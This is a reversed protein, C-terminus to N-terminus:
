SKKCKMARLKMARQKMLFRKETHLPKMYRVFSGIERLMHRVHNMTQYRETKFMLIGVGRLQSCIKLTKLSLGSPNIMKKKMLSGCLKLFSDVGQEEDSEKKNERLPFMKVPSDSVGFLQMQCNGDGSKECMKM